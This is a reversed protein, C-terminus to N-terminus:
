RFVIMKFNVNNENKRVSGQGLAASFTKNRHHKSKLKASSESFITARSTIMFSSATGYFRRFLTSGDLYERFCTM